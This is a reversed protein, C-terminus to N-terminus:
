EVNEAKSSDMKATQGTLHKALRASTPKESESRGTRCIIQRRASIGEDDFTKERLNTKDARERDAQILRETFSTSKVRVVVGGHLNKNERCNWRSYWQYDGIKSWVATSFRERAHDRQKQVVMKPSDLHGSKNKDDPSKSTRQGANNAKGVEHYFHLFTFFFLCLFFM